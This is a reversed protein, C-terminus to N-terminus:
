KISTLTIVVIEPIKHAEKYLFHAKKKSERMYLKHVCICVCFFSNRTRGCFARTLQYPPASSFYLNFKKSRSVKNSYCKKEVKKFLHQKHKFEKKISEKKRRRAAKSLFFTSKILM